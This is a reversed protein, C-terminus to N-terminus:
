KPKKTAYGVQEYDIRYELEEATSLLEFEYNNGVAGLPHVGKARMEATLIDWHNGRLSEDEEDPLRRVVVPEGYCIAAVVDHHKFQDQVRKVVEDIEFERLSLGVTEVLSRIGQEWRDKRVLKGDSRFEYDEPKIDPHQFEKARLDFETVPRNM